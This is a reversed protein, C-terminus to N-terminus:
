RKNELRKSSIILNREGRNKNKKLKQKTQYIHTRM